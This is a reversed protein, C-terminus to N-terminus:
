NKIFFDTGQPVNKNVIDYCLDLVQKRLKTREQESYGMSDSKELYFDAYYKCIIKDLDESPINISLPGQIKQLLGYFKQFNLDSNDVGYRFVLRNTFWRLFITDEASIM